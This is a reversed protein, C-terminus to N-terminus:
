SEREDILRMAADVTSTWAVMEGNAYIRVVPAENPINQVTLRHNRYEYTNPSIQKV